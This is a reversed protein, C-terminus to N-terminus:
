EAKRLAIIYEGKTAGNISALDTYGEFIEQTNDYLFTVTGTNGTFEQAIALLPDASLVHMILSDERASCFQVAYEDGNNLRIKYM